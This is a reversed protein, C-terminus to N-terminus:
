AEVSASFSQSWLCKGSRLSGLLDFLILKFADPTKVHCLFGLLLIALFNIVVLAVPVPLVAPVIIHLSNILQKSCVLHLDLLLHQFSEPKEPFSILFKIFNAFVEVIKGLVHSGRPGSIGLFLAFSFQFHGTTFQCSLL